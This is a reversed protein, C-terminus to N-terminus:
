KASLAEGYGWVSIKDTSGAISEVVLKLAKIGTVHYNRHVFTVSSSSTKLYKGALLGVSADQTDEEIQIRAFTTGDWSGEFWWRIATHDVRTTSFLFSVYDLTAVDMVISKKPASDAITEDDVVLGSGQGTKWTWAM